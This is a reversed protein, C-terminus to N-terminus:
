IVISNAPFLDRTDLGVHPGFWQSPCIIVKNPDPGLIAAMLSYSSNGCIFHSCRKMIRFNDLYDGDVPTFSIGLQNMIDIGSTLDDSFLLYEGKVRAIAQRYYEIKPRPHYNDDYDGFRMHIAIAGPYDRENTMTFYHRILPECHKFYKESQFHANMNWNGQHVRDEAAIDRYGWFYDYEQWTLHDPVVPLPNVFHKYIDIDETSGFREVADYNKWLPFAYDQGSKIAIGITGAIEFMGNALRGMRGLKLYTFM